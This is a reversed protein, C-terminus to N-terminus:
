VLDRHCHENATVRAINKSAHGAALSACRPPTNGGRGVGVGVGVVVDDVTTPPALAAFTESRASRPVADVVASASVPVRLPMLSALSAEMTVPLTGIGLASVKLAEVL